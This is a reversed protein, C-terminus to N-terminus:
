IASVLFFATQGNPYYILKKVEFLQKHRLGDYESPSLVYLIGENPFSEIPDWGGFYFNNFTSVNNYSKSISNNYIASNLYEHLPTKLHYLFFIYPQARVDTVFVQSYQNNDKIYEVTQKMGYQWEIAYRKAYEGYYYSLYDKLFYTLLIIFTVTVIKKFLPNKSFSILFYFGLASLIHWSGMMFMARAAHPSEAVLSSPIPGLLAWVLIFFGEKSRKLILFLVGAILFLLDIKYFEGTQSSLKPNKDGTIFLFQPSFHWSYQMAALNIRGLLENSTMKFLYTNEVEGRGQITQDARAKGLLQPNIFLLFCFLFIILISGILQKKFKILNNIYLIFLLIMTLPIFIKAANYSLFSFCFSVTSLLLLAKGRKITLFFTYIGLMFFFLAFNAEHNFRSFHINFPSIALSFAVLLALTEKNFVVRVLLFILIINFIGFLASPLRTSLENLGLIKVSLATFYIHIPNKGEGFSLFYLPFFNGYEDRGSNAITYANYGVAAEDWNLSPPVLDLKYLRLVAGLLIIVLLLIKIKM